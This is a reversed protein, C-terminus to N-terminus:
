RTGPSPTLVTRARGNDGGLLLVLSFVVVVITVMHPERRACRLPLIDDVYARGGAVDLKGRLTFGAVPYSPRGDM